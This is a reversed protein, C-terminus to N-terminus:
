ITLQMGEFLRYQRLISEDTMGCLNDIILHLRLFWEEADNYKNKEQLDKIQYLYSDKYMQSIRNIYRGEIKTDKKTKAGGKLIILFDEKNLKLLVSYHELIKKIMTFGAIELKEIEESRYLKKRGIKKIIRIIKYENPFLCSLDELKNEFIKEQNNAFGEAFKPIIRDIWYRTIDIVFNNLKDPIEFEIKQSNGYEIKWEEMFMAKFDELKLIRKEIGDALDSFSYALDDAIDMIHALPYRTNEDWNIKKYLAQITEEESLFYGAKSKFPTNDNEQDTCRTYKISSLISPLTLNLGHKDRECHLKLVIRLSQPNGDFNLFDNIKQELIKNNELGLSSALKKWNQSIWMRISEEGFHGFPPNGIDHIMSAIEPIMIFPDIYEKELMEKEYLLNAIKYSILKSIDAVEITHTLRSRISSNPELPFVQTKQQLRRFSSSFIVRSKDSLFEEGMNKKPFNSKRIRYPILIEKYRENITKKKM